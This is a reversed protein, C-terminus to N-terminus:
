AARGTAEADDTMETASQDGTRSEGTAGTTATV